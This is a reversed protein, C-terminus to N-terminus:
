TLTLLYLEIKKKNYIEYVDCGINDDNNYEFKIRSLGCFICIFHHFLSGLKWEEMYEIVITYRLLKHYLKFIFETMSISIEKRLIGSVKWQNNISFLSIWKCYSYHMEPQHAISEKENLVHTPWIYDVINIIM